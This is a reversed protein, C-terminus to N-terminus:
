MKERIRRIANYIQKADYKYKKCIYKVSCGNVFYDTFVVDELVSNLKKRMNNVEYELIMEELFKPEYTGNYECNEYSEIKMQKSRMCNIFQNNLIRDFYTLFKNNRDLNFTKIARFLAINGEQLYEDYFYSIVNFKRIKAKIFPQYKKYILGEACPNKELILYLLEYDNLSYMRRM